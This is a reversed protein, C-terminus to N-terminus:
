LKRIFELKLNTNDRLSDNLLFFLCCLKDSINARYRFYFIFHGIPLINFNFNGPTIQSDHPYNLLSM